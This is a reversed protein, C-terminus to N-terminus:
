INIKMPTSGEDEKLDWSTAPRHKNLCRFGPGRAERPRRREGRKILASCHFSLKLLNLEVHCSDNGDQDLPYRM